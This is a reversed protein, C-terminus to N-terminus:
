IIGGEEKLRLGGNGETKAEAASEQTKQMQFDNLLTQFTLVVQIQNGRSRTYYVTNMLFITLHDLQGIRGVQRIWGLDLVHLLRDDTRLDHNGGLKYASDHGQTLFAATDIM